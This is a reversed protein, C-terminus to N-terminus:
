LVMSEGTAKMRGSVGAAAQVLAAQRGAQPHCAPGRRARGERGAKALRDRRSDKRRTKLISSAGGVAGGYRALGALISSAPSVPLLRYHLRGSGDRLRGEALVYRRLLRYLISSLSPLSHCSVSEWFIGIRLLLTKKKGGATKPRRIIAARERAKLLRARNGPMRQADSVTLWVGLVYVSSCLMNVYVSRM